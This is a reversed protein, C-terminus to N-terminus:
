DLNKASPSGSRGKMRGSRLEKLRREHSYPRLERERLPPMEVDPEPESTELGSKGKLHWRVLFILLFIVLVIAGITVVTNRVSVSWSDIAVFLTYYPSQFITDWNLSKSKQGEANQNPTIANEFSNRL